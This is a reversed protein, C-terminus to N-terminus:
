GANGYCSDRFTWKYQLKRRWFTRPACGYSPAMECIRFLDEALLRVKSWM